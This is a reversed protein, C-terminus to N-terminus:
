LYKRKMGQWLFVIFRTEASHVGNIMNMKKDICNHFAKPRKGLLRIQQLFEILILLAAATQCGLGARPVQLVARFWLRVGGDQLM